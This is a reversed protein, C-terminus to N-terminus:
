VQKMIFSQLKTGNLSILGNVDALIFVKIAKQVTEIPLAGLTTPTNRCPMEGEDKM